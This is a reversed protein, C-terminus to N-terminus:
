IEAGSRVSDGGFPRAIQYPGSSGWQKVRIESDRAFLRFPEDAELRYRVSRFKVPHFVFYGKSYDQPAPPITIEPLDLGDAQVTLRVGTRSDHAIWGDRVHQWGSLGHTIQPTRWVRAAEPAPEWVWRFSFVTLDAQPIVRLSHAVFPEDFSYARRSQGPHEVTFHFSRGDGGDLEFLLPVPEGGTDAELVFGQVLKAGPSGLDDWDGPLSAHDPKPNWIWGVQYLRWEGTIPYLRMNRVIKPPLPYTRWTEGKHVAEFEHLIEGGDVEVRVTVPVNQTDAKVRVGRLYKPGSEGDETWDEIVSALEPEPDFRWVHKYLRWPSLPKLQVLHAIFPREFSYFRESREPHDATLVAVPESRGDALIQVQAPGEPTEAEILIGRFEKPVPQDLDEWEVTFAANEPRPAYVWHVSYRKWPASPILRMRTAILPEPLHYAVTRRTPHLATFLVDENGDTELRFPVALGETDAELIFGQLYKSAPHGGDEWDTAVAAPLPRPDFRWLYNYLRWDGSDEPVLRVMHAEFPEFGYSRQMRRPHSVKLLPGEVGDDYLIRVLRADGGTDAELVLGRFQKLGAQGADHYDSARGFTDDPRPLFAPVFLFFEQVAESEWSAELSLNRGLTDRPLDIVRVGRGDSNFARDLTTSHNDLGIELDVSIGKTNGDLELDGWLKQSRPDGADLSPTRFRCSITGGLDGVGTAIALLGDPSSATGRLLQHVGPGEEGYHTVVPDADPWTDYFWGQLEFSYVLTRRAGSTGEYDFYLHDDYYALRPNETLDPTDFDAFGAGAVGEHPFMRQLHADTLSRPETGETEYIGDKGLFWIRPGVTVAWRSFLGKGNPVEVATLVNADGTRYIAFMRESSFVYARGNYVVGNILPESPSTLDIWNSDTTSDPDNNNSFYLRGPNDTDGVALMLGEFPGWLTPLPRGARVPEPIEWETGTAHSGANSAVELVDSTRVRHIVHPIGAILIVTGPVWDVDFDGPTDALVSTGAVTATGSDPQGITTWPRFNVNEERPNQAIREDSYVDTFVPLASNDVTGVYRWGTLDGGFRQVDLKDVNADPHQTLGVDVSQRMPRAALRSAPSFNSRVGTSSVRGRYRYVYPIGISSFDPGYGGGLWWSDIDVQIVATTEISIRIKAVDKLTRSMDTGARLLDRVRFKLEIWQNSGRILSRPTNEVDHLLDELVSTDPSIPGPLDFDQGARRGRDEFEEITRRIREVREERIRDAEAQTIVRNRAADEQAEILTQQGALANALDEPRFAYTYYNQSFDNVSRDVDFQIRGETLATIDSVRVSVHIFDEDRAIVGAAIRSLDVSLDRELTGTGISVTTRVGTPNGSANESALTHGAVHTNVTHVRISGVSNGSGDETDVRFGSSVTVIGTDCRFSTLGDPGDHVSLVRVYIGGGAGATGGLRIMDDARLQYPDTLIISCLGTTGTDYIIRDVTTATEIGPHVEQVVVVEDDALGQDLRLFMGPQLGDGFAAPLISCWGASGTDYIIQAITTDVRPSPLQVPNSATGGENWVAQVAADDVYGDNDIVNYDPASLSPSPPKVPPDLGIRHVTGDSRAKRMRLRDATYMWPRVSQEPRFPVMTLPDGSYGTDRQTFITDGTALVDGTGIVRTWVGAPDDNLRRVTHVPTKGAVVATGPAMGRRPHIIGMRYSRVNEVVPFYGDPMADPPHNVSFGRLLFRYPIKQWNDPM